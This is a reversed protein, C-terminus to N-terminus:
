PWMRKRKDADAVVPTQAAVPRVTEAGFGGAMIRAALRLAEIEAQLGSIEAQFVAIQNEKEKIMDWIKAM